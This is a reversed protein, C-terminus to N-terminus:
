QHDGFTSNKVNGSGHTRTQFTNERLSNFAAAKDEASLQSSTIADQAEKIANNMTTPKQFTKSPGITRADFCM